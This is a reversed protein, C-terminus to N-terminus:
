GVGLTLSMLFRCNQFFRYNVPLSSIVGSIKLKSYSMSNAAWFLMSLGSKVSRSWDSSLFTRFELTSHFRSVDHCTSSLIESSSLPLARAKTDLYAWVGWWCNYMWFFYNGYGESQDKKLLVLIVGFFCCILCSKQVVLAEWEFRFFPFPFFEIYM